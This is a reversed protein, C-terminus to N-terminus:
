SSEDHLGDSLTTEWASREEIEDRWAAADKRLAAFGANMAALIRQRRLREVALAVIDKRAMGTERALRAIAGSTARDVRVTSDNSRALKGM